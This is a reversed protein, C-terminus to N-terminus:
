RESRIRCLLQPHLSGQPLERHIRAELALEVRLWDGPLAVPRGDPESESSLWRTCVRRADPGRHELLIAEVVLRRSAQAELLPPSPARPGTEVAQMPVHVIGPGGLFWGKPAPGLTARARGVRVELVARGLLELATPPRADGVVSEAM